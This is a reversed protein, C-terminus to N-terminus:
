NMSVKLGVCGSSPLAGEIFYSDIGKLVQGIHKYEPEDIFPFVEIDYYVKGVGFNIGVIVGSLKGSHGFNISVTDHINFRSILTSAEM